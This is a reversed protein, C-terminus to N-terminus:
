IDPRGTVNVIQNFDRKFQGFDRPVGSFKPCKLKELKVITDVALVNRVPSVSEAIAELKLSVAKVERLFTNRELSITSSGDDEGEKDLCEIKLELLEDVKADYTEFRLRLERKATKKVNHDVSDVVKMATDIKARVSEKHNTLNLDMLKVKAKKLSLKLAKRYSAYLKAASSYAEEVEKLYEAEFKHVQIGAEIHLEAYQHYLNYLEQFEEISINFQDM